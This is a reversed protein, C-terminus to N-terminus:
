IEFDITTLSNVYVLYDNEDRQIIFSLPVAPALITGKPSGSGYDISFGKINNVSTFIIDNYPDFGQKDGSQFRDYNIGYEDITIRDDLYKADKVSAVINHIESALLGEDISKLEEKSWSLYSDVFANGVYLDDVKKCLPRINVPIRINIRDKDPLLLHSYNKILYAIIVDNHTHITQSHANLVNLKDTILSGSLRLNNIFGERYKNSETKSHNKYTVKSLDPTKKKHFRYSRQTSFDIIPQKNFLQLITFGLYKIAEADSVTHSISYGLISGSKVHNLQVAFLPHGIATREDYTFESLERYGINNGNFLHVPNCDPKDKFAYYFFNESHHLYLDGAVDNVIKSSFVPLHCTAAIISKYLQEPDIKYDFYTVHLLPPMGIFGKDIYSLKIKDPVNGNSM